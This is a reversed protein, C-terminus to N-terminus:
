TYSGSLIIQVYESNILQCSSGCLTYLTVQPAANWFKLKPPGARNFKLWHATEHLAKDTPFLTWASRLFQLGDEVSSFFMKYEGVVQRQLAHVVEIWDGQAMRQQSDSSLRLDSERKLMSVLLRRISPDVM